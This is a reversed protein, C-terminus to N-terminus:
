CCALVSEEVIDNNAMLQYLICKIQEFENKRYLIFQEYTTKKFEHRKDNNHAWTM